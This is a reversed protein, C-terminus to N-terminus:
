SLHFLTARIFYFFQLLLQFHDNKNLIYIAQQDEVNHAASEHSLWQWFYRGTVIGRMCAGDGRVTRTEEPYRHIARVEDTFEYVNQPDPTVLCHYDTRAM